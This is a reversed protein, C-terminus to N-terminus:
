GYDHDLLQVALAPLGVPWYEEPRPRLSGPGPRCQDVVDRWRQPIGAVGVVAGFLAGCIAANTDTDGGQAITNVLAEEFDAATALQYVANTFAIRVWGMQTVYDAPQQVDAPDFLAVTEARNLGLGVAQAIAFAYQENALLCVENSHTIRADLRAWERTSEPDQACFVGLPSIRMLAGNSQSNSNIEGAVLASSCTNGIDFPQSGAWRRYAAAIADVDFGCGVLTRALALALESDDTPQGASLRFPGGDALERVGAPYAAAIQAPTAFEVLSGLSDGIIQGYLVGQARDLMTM